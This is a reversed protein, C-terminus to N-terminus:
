SRVLNKSRNKLIKFTLSSKILIKIKVLNKCSRLLIEEQASNLLPGVTTKREARNIKLTSIPTKCVHIYMKTIPQNVSIIM